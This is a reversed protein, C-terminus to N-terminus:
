LDKMNNNPQRDILIAYPDLGVRVPKGKVIIQLTHQGATFKYKSLCLPNNKIAL